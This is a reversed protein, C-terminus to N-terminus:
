VLGIMVGPGHDHAAVARHLTPWVRGDCADLARQLRDAFVARSSRRGRPQRLLVDWLYDWAARADPDMRDYHDELWTVADDLAVIIPTTAVVFTAQVRALPRWSRPPLAHLAGAPHHLAAPQQPLEVVVLDPMRDLSAQTNTVDGPNRLSPLRLHTLQAAIPALRLFRFPDAVDPYPEDTDRENRTLDLHRLAPLQVPPLYRRPDPHLRPVPALYPVLRLDLETVAPLLAAAVTLSLVADIGTLRLTRLAPHAFVALAGYGGVELTHLRPAATVLAAASKSGIIPRPGTGLQRLALSTLWPRPAVTLLDFAEALTAPRGTIRVSRLYPGLAGLRAVTEVATGDDLELHVFGYRCHIAPDGAHDGLLARLLGHRRALLAPSTGHRTAHLELAILEGRPDGLAQLEDAYVALEDLNWTSAASLATELDHRRSV